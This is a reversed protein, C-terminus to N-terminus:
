TLWLIAIKTTLIAIIQWSIITVKKSVRDCYVQRISTAYRNDDSSISEAVRTWIGYEATQM